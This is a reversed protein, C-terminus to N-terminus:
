ENYHFTFGYVTRKKTSAVYVRSRSINFYKMAESMSSFYIREDSKICYISRKSIINKGKCFPTPM